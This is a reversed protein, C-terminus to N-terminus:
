DNPLSLASLRAQWDGHAAFIIRRTQESAAINEIRIELRSEPLWGNAIEPWEILTIAQELAEDFGLQELESEDELRYLDYHYLISRENDACQYEQCLTFTPSTISEIPEASFAHILGKSFCTKGAGLDGSLTICDNQHLISAVAAAVSQTQSVSMSLTELSVPM